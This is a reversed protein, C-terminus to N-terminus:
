LINIAVVVLACSLFSEVIKPTLCFFSLMHNPKDPLRVSATSQLFLFMVFAHRQNGTQLARNSLIDM